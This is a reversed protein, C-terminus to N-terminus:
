LYVHVMASGPEAFARRLAPMLDAPAHVHEGVCSCAGTGTFDATEPSGPQNVVVVVASMGHEALPGVGALAAQASCVDTVLCVQRDPRALRAGVAFASGACGYPVGTARHGDIEKQGDIARQGGVELQGEAERQGDIEQQGRAVALWTGPVGPELYRCADVVLDAGGDLVVVAHTPLVRRLELFLRGAGIAGDRRTLTSRDVAAAAREADELCSIWDEHDDHEGRFHAMAGLALRLDGAAGVLRHTTRQAVGHQQAAQEYMVAHRHPMGVMVLVDAAEIAPGLVRSVVLRHGTPLAGRALGTAIVPVQLTEVVERLAAVAGHAYVESGALVLPRKAASILQAARVAEAPDPESVTMPEPVGLETEVPETLLGVPLDLLVCGQPFSRAARVASNVGAEIEDITEVQVTAVCPLGALGCGVLVVPTSCAEVAAVGPLGPVRETDQPDVVVVSPRRTIGALAEAALVAPGLSAMRVVPQGAAKAADVLGGPSHQGFTLVERSEHCGLAAIVLDAGTGAIRRTM